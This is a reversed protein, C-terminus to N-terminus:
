AKGKRVAGILTMTKSLKELRTIRNIASQAEDFGRMSRRWEEADDL